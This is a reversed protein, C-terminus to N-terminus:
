KGGTRPQKSLLDGVKGLLRESQLEKEGELENKELEMVELVELADNSENEGLVLEPRLILDGDPNSPEYFGIAGKKLHSFTRLERGGTEDKGLDVVVFNKLESDDEGSNVVKARGVWKSPCWMFKGILRNSAQKYPANKSELQVVAQKGSAGSLWEYGLYALGLPLVLSM